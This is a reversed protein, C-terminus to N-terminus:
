SYRSVVTLVAKQVDQYLRAPLFVICLTMIPPLIWEVCGIFVSRNYTPVQIYVTDDRGSPAGAARKGDLCM